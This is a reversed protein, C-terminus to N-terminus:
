RWVYYALVLVVGIFLSAAYARISGTQALRLIGGAGRVLRGVGNVSGDILGADVTRWLGHESGEVMPKVVAADYVEDVYYKNLLLRYLGPFRAALADAARRRKLFLVWSLAIGALAIVTAFVMFEREPAETPTEHRAAVPQGESPEPALHEAGATSQESGAASAPSEVTFSPELFRDIRNSGGLAPPVGVYGAVVAGIALIMLPVAM